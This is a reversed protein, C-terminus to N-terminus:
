RTAFESDQQIDLRCVPYHDDRIRVSCLLTRCPLYTIYPFHTPIPNTNHNSLSFYNLDLFLDLLKWDWLASCSATPIQCRVFFNQNVHLTPSNHGFTPYIIFHICFKRMQGKNVERSSFAPFVARKTWLLVDYCNVSCSKLIIVTLLLVIRIETLCPNSSNWVADPSFGIKGYWSKFRVAIKKFIPLDPTFIPLDPTFIPLDPSIRGIQSLFNQQKLTIIGVMPTRSHRNKPICFNTAWIQDKKRLCHM